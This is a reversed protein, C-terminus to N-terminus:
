KDERCARSWAANHAKIQRVTEPTDRRSWYIPQAVQCFRAVPVRPVPPPAPVQCAMVLIGFCWVM